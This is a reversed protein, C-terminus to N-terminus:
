IRFSETTQAHPFLFPQLQQGQPIRALDEKWRILHIKYIVTCSVPVNVCIHLHLPFHVPTAHPTSFGLRWSAPCKVNGLIIRQIRHSSHIAMMASLVNRDIQKHYKVRFNHVFNHRALCFDFGISASIIVIIISLKLQIIRNGNSQLM